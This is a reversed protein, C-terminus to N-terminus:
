YSIEVRWINNANERSIIVDMERYIEGDVNTWTIGGDKSYQWQFSLAGEAQAVLTVTDGLYITPKQSILEISANPIFANGAADELEEPAAELTTEEESTLDEPIETAEAEEPVVGEEAEETAEATTETEETVEDEQSTAEPLKEFVAVLTTNAEIPEAFDHIKNLDQNFWHLFSYGKESPQSPKDVPKGKEIEKIDKNNQTIFTVMVIEFSVKEEIIELLLEPASEVEEASVPLAESPMEEQQEEKPTEVPIEAPKAEEKPAEVPVDAPKPEEQPTEVPKPEEKPAEVPKPEEKPAEVPKPEKKPAEVPKPEEKPAEVPVEEAAAEEEDPPFGLPVQFNPFIYYLVAKPTQRTSDERPTRRRAIEQASIGAAFSISVCSFILIVVLLLATFRKM